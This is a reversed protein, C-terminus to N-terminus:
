QKCIQKIVEDANRRDVSVDVAGAFLKFAYQTKLESGCNLWHVSYDEFKDNSAIIQAQVSQGIGPPGGIKIFGDKSLNQLLEKPQPWNESEGFHSYLQKYPSTYACKPGM